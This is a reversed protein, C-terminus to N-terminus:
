SIYMYDSCFHCVVDFRYAKTHEFEAQEQKYRKSNMKFVYKLKNIINAKKKTKYYTCLIHKSFKRGLWAVIAVFSCICAIRNVFWNAICLPLISSCLRTLGTLQACINVYTVDYMAIILQVENDDHKILFPYKLKLM